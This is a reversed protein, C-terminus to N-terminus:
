TNSLFNYTIQVICLKEYIFYSQHWCYENRTYICFQKVFLTCISQVFFFTNANIGIVDHKDRGYVPIRSYGSRFIETITEFNLTREVNLMFCSEFPTMVDKVLKDQYSIAGQAVDGVESDIVGHAVHIKIHEMMEKPTHITGIEEGLFFDLMMAIPKTFPYLLVIIVKMIPVTKAGIYLAYKACTAQPIIEGLITILLSSTIFGVTGDTFQSMLISLISNVSVNGLLLTCLLLNGNERIPAIISAYSAQELDEGGMVVQLGIKDLGLLGLTLGSFLASLCLLWLILLYQVVTDM